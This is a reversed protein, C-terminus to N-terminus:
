APAEGGVLWNFVREGRYANNSDVLSREFIDTPRDTIHKEMTISIIGFM